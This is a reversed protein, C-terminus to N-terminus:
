HKGGKEQSSSLSLFIYINFIFIFVMFCNIIRITGEQLRFQIHGGVWKEKKKLLSHKKIANNKDNQSCFV